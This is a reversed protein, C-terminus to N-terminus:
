NDGKFISLISKIVELQPTTPLLDGLDNNSDEGQKEVFSAMKILSLYITIGISSLIVLLAIIFVGIRWNSNSYVEGLYKDSLICHIEFLVMLLFIISIFGFVLFLWFRYRKREDDKKLESSVDQITSQSVTGNSQDTSDNDSM